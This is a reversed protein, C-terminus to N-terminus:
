TCIRCIRLCRGLTLNLKDIEKQQEESKRTMQYLNLQLHQNAIIAIMRDEENKKDEQEKRYFYSTVLDVHQTADITHHHSLESKQVQV